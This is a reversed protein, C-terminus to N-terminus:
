VKFKESRAAHAEAERMVRLLAAAHRSWSLHERVWESGAASLRRFFEPDATLEGIAQAIGTPDRPAVLLATKHDVLVEAAGAGRSVIAPLGTAMAEFVVLGWSQLSSPFLFIDSAAYLGRLEEESVRGHFTVRERIGSEQAMRELYEHYGPSQRWDGAIALSLDYGRKTLEGMAILADEYRRYPFLIGVALLRARKNRLPTRSVYPFADADIGNRIIVAETGLYQRVLLLDREDLVVVRDQKRIFNRIEWLDWLRWRLRAFLPPRGGFRDQWDREGISSRLPFDHMTWVSPVSRVLDKFYAAARYGLPDHPHLLETNPAIALALRRALRYEDRTKQWRNRRGGGSEPPLAVVRLGDRLDRYGGDLADRLTYIVPEHGQEKMERAVCLVHRQIGGRVDLTRLIM